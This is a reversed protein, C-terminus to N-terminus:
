LTMHPYGYRFGSEFIAGPAEDGMSAPRQWPFSLRIYIPMPVTTSMMIMTSTTRMSRLRHYRGAIGALAGAVPGLGHLCRPRNGARASARADTTARFMALFQRLIRGSGHVLTIRDEDVARDATITGSILANFALGLDVGSCCTKASRFRACAAWEYGHILGGLVRSHRIALTAVAAPATAPPPALPPGAPERAERAVM